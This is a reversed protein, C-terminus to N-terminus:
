VGCTPVRMVPNSPFTSGSGRHRICHSNRKQDSGNSDRLSNAHRL